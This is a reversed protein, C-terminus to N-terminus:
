SSKRQSGSGDWSRGGTGMDETGSRRWEPPRQREAVDTMQAWM